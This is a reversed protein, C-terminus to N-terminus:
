YTRLSVCVCVRAYITYACWTPRKKKERKKTHCGKIKPRAVTATSSKSGDFSRSKFVFHLRTFTDLTGNELFRGRHPTNKIINCSAGRLSKPSLQPPQLKQFNDPLSSLFLPVFTFVFVSFDDNVWARTWVKNKKVVSRRQRRRSAITPLNLCFPSNFRARTFLSSSFVWHSM